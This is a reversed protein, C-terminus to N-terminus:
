PQTSEADVSVSGTSTNLTFTYKQNATTAYNYSEYVSGLIEMTPDSVYNISGTSTSSIFRAGIDAINDKYLFSISGTSTEMHSSVNANMNIYQYVNANISGTSTELIINIDKSYEMNYSKYTISGTSVYGEIDDGAICNTFNLTLSGTSTEVYYGEAFDVGVAFISSSGTSSGMAVRDNFAVDNVKMNVSGTSATMSVKGNFTVNNAEMYLAGTSSSLITRNLVVNQPVKMEVAGTATHAYLDYVVDTRLTVTININYSSFWHTPDFWAEPLAELTFTKTAEDWWESSPHYFYTYNKGAMFLGTIKLNVDIDAYHSMASSNYQIFISGIDTNITLDEIPDPSIPEYSFNQDYTVVGATAFGTTFFGIATGGLLVAAVIIAINYNKM